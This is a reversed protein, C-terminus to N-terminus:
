ALRPRSAGERSPTPYLCLRGRVSPPRWASPSVRVSRRPGCAPDPDRLDQLCLRQRSLLEMDPGLPPDSRPQFVLRAGQRDPLRRPRLELLLREALCWQALELRDRVAHRRPKCGGPETTDLRLRGYNLREGPTAATLPVPAPQGSNDPLLPTIQVTLGIPSGSRGLALDVQDLTGTIGATFTQAYSHTNDINLCANQSFTPQSQDLAGAASVIPAVVLSTLMAAVGAAAARAPATVLRSRYSVRGGAFSGRGPSGGGVENM